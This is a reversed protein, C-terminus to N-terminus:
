KVVKKGNIIVIGKYGKGVKQGALNYAPADNDITGNEIADIGTVVEEGFIGIFERAQVESLMLYAHGAQCTWDVKAKQFGVVGPNTKTKVYKFVKGYEASTVTFPNEGTGVLLNDTLAPTVCNAVAVKYKGAPAKIIAGAGAPLKTIEELHVYSESKATAQYATVESGAFDIAQTSSFSAAGADSITVEVLPAVRFAVFQAGNVKAYAYVDTNESGTYIYDITEIGGGDFEHSAVENDISGTALAFTGGNENKRIAYVTIKTNPKVIFHVYRADATSVDNTTLRVNFGNAFDPTTQASKNNKLTFPNESTGVVELNDIWETTTIDRSKGSAIDTIWENGNWVKNDVAVLAPAVVSIVYSAESAKYEDNGAYSATITATEGIKKGTVTGDAAVTAVTEDSSAYTITAGEPGGTLTAVNQVTGNLEVNTTPNSFALTTEHKVATVTINFDQDYANYTSTAASTINVVATGVQDATITAGSISVANGSKVTATYALGDPGSITATGGVELETPTITFVPNVTSPEVKVGYLNIGNDKSYVYVDTEATGSYTYEAIYIKDGPFDTSQEVGNVTIGLARTSSSNSSMGYVTIKSPGTIKFHINQSTSSGTKALQFRQTFSIDGYTKNSSGVTMSSVSALIGMNNPTLVETSSQAYTSEWEGESFKWFYDNVATLPVIAAKVKITTSYETITAKYNTEDIVTITAKVVSTGATETDIATIGNTGLTVNGGDTTLTYAVSYATGPTATKPTVSFTPATATSGFDFTSTGNDSWAGVLNTRTDSTGESYTIKINDLAAYKGSSSAVTVIKLKGSVPSALTVTKNGWKNSGGTAFGDKSGVAAFVEVDGTETVIYAAFTPKGNDNAIADISIESINDYSATTTVTIGVNGKNLYSLGLFNGDKLSFGNLSNTIVCNATGGSPVVTTVDWDTALAVNDDFTYTKTVSEQAQAGTVIAVLLTLLTFLKKM